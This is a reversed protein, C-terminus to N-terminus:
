IWIWYRKSPSDALRVDMLCTLIDIIQKGVKHPFDFFLKKSFAMSRYAEKITKALETTSTERTSNQLVVTALTTDEHIWPMM